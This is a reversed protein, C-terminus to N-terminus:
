RARMNLLLTTSVQSGGETTALTVTLLGGNVAFTVDGQAAIKRAVRQTSQVVGNLLAERVLAGAAADYSYRYQNSSDAWSLTGYVSGAGPTFTAAENADRGLWLEANQADNLAGLRDNGWRSAIFFQYISTGILGMLISAIFLALIVEVLTTGRDGPGVPISGPRSVLRLLVTHVRGGTRRM